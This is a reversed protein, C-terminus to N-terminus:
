ETQEEKIEETLASGHTISNLKDYFDMILGAPVAAIVDLSGDDAWSESEKYQNVVGYVQGTHQAPVTIKVKKTVIKIPIVKSIEDLIDKIQDEISTNKINVNSQDLASKIREITIPNGSQPDVANTSLFDVVQKYKAEQEASRQEQTVLVEGSKVIKETIEQIDTTGFCTQLDEQSAIDGQKSNTFIKDMEPSVSGEGKKFNLADEMEVLVEFHKGEKKIRAITQAM